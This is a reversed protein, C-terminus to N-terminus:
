KPWKGDLALNLKLVNVRPEGLFGAQRPETNADVLSMIDIEKAGRARAVRAGQLRAAAPSIHPDLGSGSAYLLDAPAQAGYAARREKVAAALAASAPSQNSGGSPLPTYNM